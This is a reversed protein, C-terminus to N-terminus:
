IYNNLQLRCSAQDTVAQQIMEQFFIELPTGASKMMSSLVSDPSFSCYLPAEIFWPQGAPDLRFDFLSYHRCGLAIHCRKAAEWVRPMDPDNDSVAWAHVGDKVSLELKGQKNHQLKNEYARIPQHEADMRYEKLPLCVLEGNREVVGCRVERGLKIFREVLIEESHVFAAELAAAYDEKQRVLTVGLSNDATTPKVILPLPLDPSMGALRNLQLLKGQPVCVGAAQVTLRAKAKNAAIAMTAPRNGVYPIHLAELLSRYDTMGPVCFMHPVAVDIHAQFLMEVAELRTLIPAAEIDVKELSLPFRWKGDPTVYAILFEYRALNATAQICGQAYLCSIECYLDSVASGVLHLVRMYGM